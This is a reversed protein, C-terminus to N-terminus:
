PLDVRFGMRQYHFAVQSFSMINSKRPFSALFPPCFCSLFLLFCPLFSPLFSPNFSSSEQVLSSSTASPLLPFSPRPLPIILTTFFDPHPGGESLHFTRLDVSKNLEKPGWFIPGSNKRQNNNQSPLSFLLFLFFVVVVTVIVCFFFGLIPSSLFILLSLHLDPLISSLPHISTSSPCISCSSSHHHLVSREANGVLPHSLSFTVTKGDMQGNEKKNEKGVFDVSLVVFKPESESVVIQCNSILFASVSYFLKNSLTSTTFEGVVDM